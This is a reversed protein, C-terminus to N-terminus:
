GYHLALPLAACTFQGRSATGNAIQDEILVKAKELDSIKDECARVVADNSTDLLRDVTKKLTQKVETLQRKLHTTADVAQHERISWAKKFMAVAMNMLAPALELRKILEGVEGELKDRRISKGYAECGKTPLSLVSLRM